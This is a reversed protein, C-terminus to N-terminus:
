RLGVGAEIVQVLKLAVLASIDAARTISVAAPQALALEIAVADGLSHGYIFISAPDIGKQKTLYRWAARADAYVMAESPFTGINAGSDVAL